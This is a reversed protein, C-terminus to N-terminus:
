YRFTAALGTGVPMREAAMVVVHGGKGVVMEGLDDLMDDIDPDGLHAAKIRGTARDIRGPLERDSEILLMAVRGAAAAEAVQSIEDSGLGRSQAVAFEEVWKSQLARHQPEVVLWARERLKEIAMGEPNFPLGVDLLHTNHSVRRFLHHHEPLAALILPLGSRRSHHEFVARDVARFFRATENDAEEKKGRHGEHVPMSSGGAGGYWSVTSQPDSFQDGLDTITRPVEPALEIEDLSNRDGEYLRARHRSLGLVQYRDITQLFRRVPKTHFTDAVVALEPVPRQLLFVRFLGPGGLVALGDLVHNWFAHDNALANFPELLRRVEAAPHAQELSLKLKEVLHRFRIPDQQNEPHRRHTPQYLSLCPRRNFATLETLSEATPSYRM